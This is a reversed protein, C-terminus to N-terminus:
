IKTHILTQLKFDISSFPLLFFVLVFVLFHFTLPCASRGYLVTIPVHGIVHHRIFCNIPSTRGREQDRSDEYSANFTTVVVNKTDALYWDNYVALVNYLAIFKVSLLYTDVRGVSIRWSSIRIM